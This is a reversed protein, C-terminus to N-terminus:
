YLHLMNVLNVFATVCELPLKLRLVALNKALTGTAIIEQAVTCPENGQRAIEVTAQSNLSLLKCEYAIAARSLFVM